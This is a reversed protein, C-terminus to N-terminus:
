APPQEIVLAAPVGLAELVAPANLIAYLEDVITAPVAGPASRYLADIRAAGAPDASAVAGRITQFFAWGENLPVPQEDVAAELAKGGYRLTALYFITNLYGRVRGASAEFAAADGSRSTALLLAWEAVMPDALLGTRSYNGERSRATALISHARVGEANSAGIVIAAGEDVNHPAGSADDTNGAALKTRATEVEALAKGYIAMQLGKDVLQRRAADSVGVGPGTADLGASIVADIFSATGYAGAGGPFVALVDPDTAIGQFTRVTGDSKPSNKGEEYIARATAWDGQAIAALMDVRDLPLNFYGDVDSVPRYLGADGSVSGSVGSNSVSGTLNGEPDVSVTGPRDEGACAVLGVLALSLAALALAKPIFRIFRTHM